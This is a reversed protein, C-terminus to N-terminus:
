KHKGAKSSGMRLNWKVRKWNLTLPLGQMIDTLLYHCPHSNLASNNQLAGTSLKPHEGRQEWGRLFGGVERMAVGRPASPPRSRMRWVRETEKLSGSPSNSITPTHAPIVCSQSWRFTRWSITFEFNLLQRSAYLSITPEDKEGWSLHTIRFHCTVLTLYCSDHQPPFSCSSVHM